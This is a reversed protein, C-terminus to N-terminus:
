KITHWKEIMEPEFKSLKVARAKDRIIAPVVALAQDANEAEIIAWGIHVGDECGWDFNNLYGMSLIQEVALKCGNATHHSEVLFRDMSYILVWIINPNEYKQCKLTAIKEKEGYLPSKVRQKISYFTPQRTFPEQQQWAEVM